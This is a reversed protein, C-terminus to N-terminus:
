KEISRGTQAEPNTWSWTDKRVEDVTKPGATQISELYTNVSYRVVVFLLIAISLAIVSVVFRPHLYVGTRSEVYHSLQKIM